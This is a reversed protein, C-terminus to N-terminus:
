SGVFAKDMEAVIAAAAAVPDSAATIPRGVVIYDAGAQVAAGPTAIRAQDNAEAAALRIGPTVIVFGPGCARRIAAIERPSAVVGDLGAVQALRALRPVADEPRGTMGIEQLDEGTLSTLVTVGLVLPRPIGMAGATERASEAAAAMMARGGSAHVNLMSVGMQVAERTAARVTNPIDHFKLDLFVKIENAVLYRVLVPGEATFLESGVKFAGVQERLSEALRAAAAASPLDLAVILKDRAPM